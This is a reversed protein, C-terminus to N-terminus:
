TLMPSVPRRMSCTLRWNWPSPSFTTPDHPICFSGFMRPYMICVYMLTHIYTYIYCSCKETGAWPEMLLNIWKLDCWDGRLLNIKKTTQHVQAAPTYLKASISLYQLITTLDELPPPPRNSQHLGSWASPQVNPIEWPGTNWCRMSNSQPSMLSGNRACIGFNWTINIKHLSNELPTPWHRQKSIIDYSNM